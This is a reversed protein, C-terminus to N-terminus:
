VSSRPGRVAVVVAFKPMTLATTEASASWSEPVISTAPLGSKLLVPSSANLPSTAWCASVAGVTVTVGSSPPSCLSVM